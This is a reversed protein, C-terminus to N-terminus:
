SLNRTLLDYRARAKYQRDTKRYDTQYSILAGFPSFVYISTCTPRGTSITGTTANNSCDPETNALAILADCSKNLM